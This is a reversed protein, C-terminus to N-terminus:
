TTAATDRFFTDLLSNGYDWHQKRVRLYNGTHFSMKESRVIVKGGSLSLLVGGLVANEDEGDVVQVQFIAILRLHKQLACLHITM